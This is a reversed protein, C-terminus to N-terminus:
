NGKAIIEELEKRTIGYPHREAYLLIEQLTGKIIPRKEKDWRATLIYDNGEQWFNYKNNFKVIMM